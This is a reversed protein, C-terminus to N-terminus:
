KNHAHYNYWLIYKGTCYFHGHPLISFANRAELLWHGHQHIIVRQVPKTCLVSSGSLTVNLGTLPYSLVPKQCEFILEYSIYIYIYGSGCRSQLVSDTNFYIYCHHNFYTEARRIKVRYRGNIFKKGVVFILIIVHFNSDSWFSVFNSSETVCQIKNRFDNLVTWFNKPLCFEHFWWIEEWWNNM